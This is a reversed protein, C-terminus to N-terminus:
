IFKKLYELINKISEPITNINKIYDNILKTIKKEFEKIININV